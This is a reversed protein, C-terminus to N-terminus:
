TPLVLGCLSAWLTQSRIVVQSLAHEFTVTKSPPLRSLSCAFIFRLLFYCYHFKSVRKEGEAGM